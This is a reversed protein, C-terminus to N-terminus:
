ESRTPTRAAWGSPTGSFPTDRMADYLKSKKVRSPARSTWIGCAFRETTRAASSDDPAGTALSVVAATHGRLEAVLQPRINSKQSQRMPLSDFGVDDDMMMRWVRIVGDGGTVIGNGACYAIARVTSGEHAVWAKILANERFSTSDASLVGVSGDANGIAIVGTKECASM